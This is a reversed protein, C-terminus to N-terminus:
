TMVYKGPPPNLLVGDAFKMLLIRFVVELNEYRVVGTGECSEVEVIKGMIMLLVVLVGGVLFVVVVVVIVVVDM